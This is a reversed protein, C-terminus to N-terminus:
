AARRRVATVFREVGFCDAHVAVGAFANEAHLLEAVADAQGHGPDFPPHHPPPAPTVTGLARQRGGRAWCWGAGLGVWWEYGGATELGLFGGPALVEGAGQCVRRLVALGADDGGDLALLPEHRGVEAQLGALQPRPIYPPNCVLGGVANPGLGALLPAYLDGVVVTVRGGAWARGVNLRAWAAAVESIDVAWLPVPRPLEAALALALAGSGCCMDAWPATDLDGGQRAAAAVALDVLQETEPRPCLVGPGVALVAGRWHAGGVAYQFPVRAQVRARWAAQLEAVSARLPVPSALGAKGGGGGGSARM